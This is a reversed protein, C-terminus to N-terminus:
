FLMISSDDYSYRTLRLLFLILVWILFVQIGPKRADVIIHSSVPSARRGAGYPGGRSSSNLMVPPQEWPGPCSPPAGHRSLWRTCQVDRATVPLDRPVLYLLRM